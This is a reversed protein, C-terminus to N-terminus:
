KPERCEAPQPGIRRYARHNSISPLLIEPEKLRAPRQRQGASARMKSAKRRLSCDSEAIHGATPFVPLLIGPEKLRAPRLRQRTIYKKFPLFYWFGFARDFNRAAQKRSSFSYLLSRKKCM